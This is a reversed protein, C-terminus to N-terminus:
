RTQISEKQYIRIGKIDRIGNSIADRIKKSDSSCFIRPIDNENEIEFTWTKRITSSSMESTITASVKAPANELYTAMKENAVAVNLMAQSNNEIAVKAEANAKERLAAAEADMRIREEESRKAVLASQFTIIKTEIKRRLEEAMDSFPKFQANLKKVTSNLPDVFERRRDDITKIYGKVRKLIDSADACETETTITKPEIESRYLEIQTEIETVVEKENQM